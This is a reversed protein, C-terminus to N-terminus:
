YNKPETIRSLFNINNSIIKKNLTKNRIKNSIRLIYDKLWLHFIISKHNGGGRGRGKEARRGIKKAQLYQSFISIIKTSKKLLKKFSKTCVCVESLCFAKKLFKNM